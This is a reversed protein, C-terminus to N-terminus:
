QLRHGYRQGDHPINIQREVMEGAAVDLNLKDLIPYTLNGYAAYTTQINPDTNSWCYTYEDNSTPNTCSGSAPPGPGTPPSITTTLISGSFRTDYYYFGGLWKFPASDPSALRADVQTTKQKRNESRFTNDRPPETSQFHASQYSPVVTLTGFGLNWNIDASYQDIKTDRYPNNPWQNAPYGDDWPNHRQDYKVGSVHGFQKPNGMTGDYNSANASDYGEWYGYYTLVSNDVGNGGIDQHNFTAVLNLADTAQWRYKLRANTLDSNGANSELYGDRKQNSYAIRAAQNDTFPVNLVGSTNVLHYNGLELSGYGEYKFVPENSVLSVAGALSSGGLTTSQTGRMVEARKMDLTGGRVVEGRNQYVGDILVAVASQDIGGTPPGFNGTGIGRMYFDSGVQSGQSSVGPIGQMIDDIRQKGERSLQEGSVAQISIPTKQLNAERKEATVTIEQLTFTDKDKDEQAYVVPVMFLAVLFVSLASRFILRTMRKLM